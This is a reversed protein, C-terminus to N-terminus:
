RKRHGMPLVCRVSTGRDRRGKIALTAGITNARYQMNRLGMTQRAVKESIGKGDDNIQLVAEGDLVALKIIIRKANAHKVANAVAEEAIRYLHLAVAPKFDIRESRPWEFKVGGPVRDALEALAAPLGASTLTIPHLGRALNRCSEITETMLPAISRVKEGLKKDLVDIQNALSGVLLTTAGLRQCLDDHLDQGIRQRESEVAMLLEAELDRRLQIERKLTAILATLRSDAKSNISAVLGNYREECEDLAAVVKRYPARKAATM